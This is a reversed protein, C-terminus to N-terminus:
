SISGFLSVFQTLDANVMKRSKISGILLIHPLFWNLPFFILFLLLLLLNCFFFFSCSLFFLCVSQAPFKFLLMKFKMVFTFFYFLSEITFHPLYHTQLVKYLKWDYCSYKSKRAPFCKLGYKLLPLFCRGGVGVLVVCSRGGCVFVPFFSFSHFFGFALLKCLGFWTIFNTKTLYRAAAYVMILFKM